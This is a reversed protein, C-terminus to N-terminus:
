YADLRGTRRYHALLQRAMRRTKRDPDNWVQELAALARERLAAPSGDGLAHVVASRVGADPDAVLELVRDWVRAVDAKVHCPCLHQVARRRIRPDADRTRELWRELEEGRVDQGPRPADISKWHEDSM